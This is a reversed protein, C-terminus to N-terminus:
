TIKMKYLQRYKYPMYVASLLLGVCYGFLSGLVCSVPWVQWPRDWDLPIPVAGLWAGVLTCIGTIFVATEPGLSPKGLIFVTSWRGLDPGLVFCAPVVALATLLLAFHFTEATAEIAPAGFLVAFCHFIVCCTACLGACKMASRVHFQLASWLVSVVTHVVVVIASLVKVSILPQSILDFPIKLVLSLAVTGGFFTCWILSLAVTSRIKQKLTSKGTDFAAM